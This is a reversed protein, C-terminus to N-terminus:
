EPATPRVPTLGIEKKLMRGGDGTLRLYYDSSCHTGDQDLTFLINSTGTPSMSADEATKAIQNGENYEDFMSIYIGQAGVRVVDYLQAWMFDGHIRQGTDGPLVSPQYAIGNANLDAQDPVLENNYHNAVDNVTGIAGVMWPSIMNFAHYVNIFGPRSGGVGTRWERPVGGILYVGQGKFWSIVDLCTAADWPHASDNFGFGWITVVPKGNQRAYAPSTTYASMKNVWDAKIDAQMTTWGTVDYMIYFKRGYTV